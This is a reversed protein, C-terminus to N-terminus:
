VNPNRMILMCAITITAMSAVVDRLSKDYCIVIWLGFFAAYLLGGALQLWFPWISPHFYYRFCILVVWSILFFIVASKMFPQPPAFRGRSSVILWFVVTITINSFLNIANKCLEKL